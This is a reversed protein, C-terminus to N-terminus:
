TRVTARAKAMIKLLQEWENHLQKVAAEDCKVDSELAVELWYVTEDTEEVVISLKSFFEKKSRTRCAARYNAAASTASKILQFRIVSLAPSNGTKEMLNIVGIAAQKTRATMYSVYAEKSMRNGNGGYTAQEEELLTDIDEFWDVLM